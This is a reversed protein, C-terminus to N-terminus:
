RGAVAEVRGLLDRYVALTAAITKEESFEDVVLARARCGLDSRLRADALLRAVADALAKANRPPVLLGTEGDIVIERCGPVDTAVIAKACSAAELLIKPVGEPYTTPLAVVSSEQLVKPMDDQLGWWEILGEAAWQRLVPEPIPNPNENDPAGVLVFRCAVGRAKLERAADVFEGIGKEWLLRAALLVIPEGKPAPGPQFRQVDVGAGRILVTQDLAIAGRDVFWAQDQPNQFVV